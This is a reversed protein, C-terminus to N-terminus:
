RVPQQPYQAERAAQRARNAAALARKKFYGKCNGITALLLVLSVPTWIFSVTSAFGTSNRNMMVASYFQGAMILLALIYYLWKPFALGIFPIEIDAETVDIGDNELFISLVSVVALAIAAYSAFQYITSLNGTTSTNQVFWEFGVVGFFVAMILYYIANSARTM